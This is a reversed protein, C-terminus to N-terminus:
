VFLLPVRLGDADPGAESAAGHTYAYYEQTLTDETMYEQMLAARPLADSLLLTCPVQREVGGWHWCFYDLLARLMRPNKVDWELALAKVVLENWELLVGAALLAGGACVTARDVAQSRRSQKSEFASGIQKSVRGRLVPSEVSFTGAGWVIGSQPGKALVTAVSGPDRRIEFRSDVARRMLRRAAEPGISSRYEFEEHLAAPVRPLKTTSASVRVRYGFREAYMCAAAMVRGALGLGRHHLHVCLFTGLMALVPGSEGDGAVTVPLGLACAALRGTSVDRAILTLSAHRLYWLVLANSANGDYHEMIFDRLDQNFDNSVVLALAYDTALPEWSYSALVANGAVSSGPPLGWAEKPPAPEPDAM